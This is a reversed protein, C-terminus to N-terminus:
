AWGLRKLVRYTIFAFASILLFFLSYSYPWNEPGFIMSWESMGGVGSFFTLPMFITTIVTLRKMVENMQLSITAIHNSKSALLLSFLNNVTEKSKEILDLYRALNDYIDKYYFIASKDTIVASDSRCVRTLIEREYFVSKRLENLGKKLRFLLEPSMQEPTKHIQFEMQEVEDELGEIIPLKSDVLYDVLAYLLFEPSKFCNQGIVAIRERFKNLLNDNENDKGHMSVLYNSGIIFNVESIVPTHQEMQPLFQNFVFFSYDPFVDMKPIQQEDLCDEVTLPHIGLKISFYKLDSAAPKAFDIWVFKNQKIYAFADNLTNLIEMNGNKNLHFCNIM